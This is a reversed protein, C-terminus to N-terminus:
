VYIENFFDLKYKIIKIKKFITKIILTANMNGIGPVVQNIFM